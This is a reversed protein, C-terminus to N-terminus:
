FTISAGFTVTRPLQASSYSRIEPDSGVWYPAFFWLNSGSIYFRLASIGIKSVLDRSFSYSLNAEQLRVFGFSQLGLFRDDSYTYSPYINSPNEPTWFPHALTNRNAYGEYTLYSMKNGALGYGNGGFTGNVLVYLQWNRYSFTNQMSMRFNDKGYGLITRDDATIKGDPSGDINEYMADGPKAGNAAMYDTDTEQVIGIWKYGYIAGLSKGLFLSNTIDDEGDGYLEVLKNRNMTFSIRTTWRFDRKEINKTQLVAEIGWNDVRGMTARQSTIGSGMVPVNRTFIQNTTKSNYADVELHVRSKLFDAEFGYNFSETQEWGLATNGLAAVSQGWAVNGDFFSAIGGSQGVNLTSLTGYPELSQNGNVGWSAKLKLYDLGKIKKIFEENSATWALGVAPFVGWKKDAGFVSSGDRRVSANFHYTNRYAYMARALYGVDNHLSYSINSFKQSAALNLGYFGLTTNGVASFDTGTAQHGDVKQSDRTYVLTANVYHDGKDLTYTLINDLVWSTRKSENIYGNAKSLYADQAATTYAEDGLSINAFNTEHVFHRTTSNNTTYSGTVKFSLGPVWPFKVEIEGGTVNSVRRNEHDVSGSLTNWLPNTTTTEVGDVYLRLRGDPLFPENFPSTTVAAGYDPRVGDNRNRSQNSNFGITVYDNIKASLRVNTSFRDFQDGVIFNKNNLYGAGVYYNIRDTAGSVNLSYNQNVGTRTIYNYWDMPNNDKYRQMALTPMWDSPDNAMRRTNMLEIYGAADRMEPRYDPRSLAVSTSFNVMPKGQNGKKTTVMIVGNAAKSGYAALSTADKLVSMSEISNPDIDNMGGTFIVGNLVILPATSGSSISKQGRVQMSPSSGAEGSKSFKVGSVVGDLLSFANSTSTNMIPSDTMKVNTVSGTFNKRTTTGYGIVVSEDLLKNDEELAVDIKTKGEVPVVATVYGISSFELIADAPVRLSYTGDVDTVTGTTTGQVLVAVGILPENSADSVVGSVTISGQALAAAGFAFSFALVALMKLITKKM